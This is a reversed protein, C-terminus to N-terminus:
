SCIHIEGVWLETVFYHFFCVQSFFWRVHNTFIDVSSKEVATKFTFIEQIIVLRQFNSFSRSSSSSSSKLFHFDPLDRLDEGSMNFNAFVESNKNTLIYDGSKFITSYRRPLQGGNVVSRVITRTLFNKIKFASSLILLWVLLLAKSM